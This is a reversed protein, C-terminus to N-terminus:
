FQTLFSISISLWNSLRASVQRYSYTDLGRGVNEVTEGMTHSAAGCAYEVVELGRFVDGKADLLTKGQERTIIAALEDM